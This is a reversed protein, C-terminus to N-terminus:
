WGGGAGGGGSSGGGFGGFGGGGGGGGGWGDRDRGSGGGGGLASGILMWLLGSPGAHSLVFIIVLVILIGAIASFIRQAKTIPQQAPMAREAPMNALNVGADAAAVQAVRQVGLTVAGDYDGARLQPVMERGIDGAKADNLAGELGYGVEIWRKRDQVAFLLLVGKDTGKPGVKWKAFLENAFQEIAEDGTTKVVAVAIQAHAQQDVELCLQDLRAMTEPSLVGAMDTVYGAPQAPMDKLTEAHLPLLAFACFAVVTCLTKWYNRCHAM